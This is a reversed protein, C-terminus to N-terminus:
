LSTLSCLSFHLILDPAGEQVVAAEPVEWGSQCDLDQSAGCASLKFIRNSQNRLKHDAIKRHMRPGGTEAFDTLFGPIVLVFRHDWSPYEM